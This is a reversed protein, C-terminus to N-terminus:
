LNLFETIQEPHEAGYQIGIYLGICIALGIFIGKMLTGTFEVFYIGADRAVTRISFEERMDLLKLYVQTLEPMPKGYIIEIEDYIAREFSKPTKM